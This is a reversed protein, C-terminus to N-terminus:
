GSRILAWEQAVSKMLLMVGGKYAAYNVHGARPILEHVSSMCIIKRLAQSIGPRPGRSLFDRAAERACLFQGTLNVDLVFQWQKLSMGTFPADKRIGTNNVLTDVTGFKDRALRFIDIVEEEKSVDAQVPLAKGGAKEMLNVAETAEEPNGVYNVTVNAGERCLAIASAKGIVSSGDTVNDTQDLLRKMRTDVM